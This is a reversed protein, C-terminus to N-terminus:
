KDLVERIKGLIEDPFATKSIFNFEQESIAESDIVDATYGSMFLVKTQPNAKRIAEYVERGNKRPMRVDLLALRIEDQHELFIQVAINGDEAELVRYGSTKLVEAMVMRTNPDDEALLITEEGGAAPPPAPDRSEAAPSETLPLYIRFTTGMGPLSEAEIFGNHQSVIGYTVSLGLGSGKGSAKTTFFPEFIKERLGEDIGTGTDSVTILVYRGALGYGHAKMFAEDMVAIESRVSLTGGAPMADRANTALNVLVQEMQNIDVKASPDEATLTVILEIHEGILQSLLKTMRRIIENIRVPRLDITQRRSFALLSQSLNTARRLSTMIQGIYKTAPSNEPLTREMLYVAGKIVTLINSFDHAIGGALLGVAEMKQSQRLQDNLLSLEKTREEVLEELRDHYQKLREETQKRETVDFGFVVVKSVEGSDDLVPTAVIDNWRGQRKDEFRVQKKTRLVEALYKKRRASVDPPFFDWVPRGIVDPIRWGFRWAMTENADLCIGERDILLAAATPIDLLTRATKESERLALETEKRDTVDRSVGMVYEVSGDHGKIPMLRTELWIKRDAFSLNEETYVPAGSQFVRQLANSQLECAEPSFLERLDRGEIKERPAGFFSAAASNVYRVRGQRDILFIVEQSSEALARYLGENGDLGDDSLDKREPM